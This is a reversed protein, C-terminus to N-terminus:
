ENIGWHSYADPSAQRLIAVLTATQAIERERLDALTAASDDEVPRLAGPAVTQLAEKDDLTASSM